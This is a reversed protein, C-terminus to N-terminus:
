RQRRSGSGTAKDYGYSYTTVSRTQTVSQVTCDPTGGVWDTMATGEGADGAHMVSACWLLRSSTRRGDKTVHQTHDNQGQGDVAAEDVEILNYGNKLEGQGEVVHCIWVKPEGEADVKTAGGTSMAGLSRLGLMTVAAFILTKKM